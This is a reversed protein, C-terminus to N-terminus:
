DGWKEIYKKYGHLWEPSSFNGPSEHRVAIDWTGCRVGKIEAQRCFDMDYFHFDFREDFFLKNDVLTKRTSSLFVGDLLKVEQRTQGFFDVKVPSYNKGHTIAGSFNEWEDVKFSLDKFAWSPQFSRRVKNGVLGVIQFKALAEQVRFFWFYDIVHVDDHMFVFIDDDDGSELIEKNYLASLGRDNEPFLKIDVFDPKLIMLSKGSASSEYFQDENLRSAIVVKFRIGSGM